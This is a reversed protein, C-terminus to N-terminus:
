AVVPRRSPGVMDLGWVAFPWAIPITKLVPAPLHPKSRFRQCGQCKQVLEKAEEETYMTVRPSNFEIDTPIVAEAGYVLFFPTLGTSKNPTTRLSWLIASPEDLWCGVSHELPEVLRPKISSLILGNAREVQCNSQLHAVSALDLRIGQTACFRALAGKAFNTGNDSIISHPIGYRTTIDAIFTVATPGNLKKIPKAEIWKTFKDVAVLLHTM